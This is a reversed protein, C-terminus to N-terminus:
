VYQVHLLTHEVAILFTTKRSRCVPDVRFLGSNGPVPQVQDRATLCNTVNIVCLRRFRENELPNRAKEPSPKHFFFSCDFPEVSGLTEAEDLTLTPVVHEDM